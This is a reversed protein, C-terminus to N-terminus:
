VESMRFVAATWAGLPATTGPSAASSFSTGLTTASLDTEDEDATFAASSASCGGCAESREGVDGWMLQSGLVRQGLPMGTTIPAWRSALWPTAGM